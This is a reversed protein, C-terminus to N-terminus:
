PLIPLWGAPVTCKYYNGDLVLRGSAAECNARLEDEQAEPLSRESWQCTGVKNFGREFVIGGAEECQEDVHCWSPDETYTGGRADCFARNRDLSAQMRDQQEQQVLAIQEDIYDPDTLAKTGIDELAREVPNKTVEGLVVAGAIVGAIIIPVIFLTRM